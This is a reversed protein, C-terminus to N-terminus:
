AARAIARDFAHGWLPACQAWARSQLMQEANRRGAERVHDLNERCWELAARFAEPTREVILGNDGHRVLEPVIGVDVVVPFCGCAMGEILTRPDGEADSACTIVDVSRYWDPMQEYPLAVHGPGVVRLDPCAERILSLRKDAHKGNGAWGVVLGDRREAHFFLDPDFGKPAISVDDRHPSLLAHLRRSPVVVGSAEGLYKHAVLAPSLSGYRRQSWRHTSVQKLVRRGFRRELGGRWWFDVILDAYPLMNRRDDRSYAIRM